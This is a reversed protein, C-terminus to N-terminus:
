RTVLVFAAWAAPHSAGALRTDRLLRLQAKQLAEAESLGIRMGRVMDVSLRAATDDRLPWHSILLSRAGAFLFANALGTYPASTRGNGGASNCASLIVLDSDLKMTLIESATLLGDDEFDGSADRKGPTLVLGPETTSGIEGALLGHTAFAIVSQGRWDIKRLRAETADEGTLLLSRQPAIVAAMQRLESEANPLAPLSLIAARDVIGGRYIATMAPAANKAGGLSPAGIGVFTKRDRDRGPDAELSALSMPTEVAYDRLLWHVGALKAGTASVGADERVLMALSLTALADSAIVHLTGGQRLGSRVKPTFLAQHLNFAAAVNFAAAPDILGDDVSRRISAVMARLKGRGLAIRDALASDSTIAFTLLSYRSPMAILISDDRSLRKQVTDLDVTVPNRSSRYEPIKRALEADGAVMRAELRIIEAQVSLSSTANGRAVLANYSRRLLRSQRADEQVQRILAALRPDRAARKRLTVQQATRANLGWTALQYYELALDVRGLDIAAGSAVSLDNYYTFADENLEAMPAYRTMRIKLRAVSAQLLALGKVGDGSAIEAAAVHIDSQANRGDADPMSAGALDAARSLLPLAVTINGAAAQTEGYRDLIASADIGSAGPQALVLDYARKALAVARTEDGLESAYTSAAALSQAEALTKGGAQGEAAAVTLSIAESLRGSQYLLLGLNQMVQLTLPNRPGASKGLVDLGSRFHPEAEDLRGSLMLAKGLTAEAFGYYANDAPLVDRAIKVAKQALPIAVEARGGKVAINAATGATIAVTADRQGAAEFLEVARLAFPAGEYARGADMLATAYNISASATRAPDPAKLRGLIDLARKQLDLNREARGTAEFMLGLNSLTDAMVASNEAGAARLRVEIAELSVVADAPRQEYYYTDAIKNVIEAQIVVPLQARVADGLVLEWAARGAKPDKVLDIAEARSRLTQKSIPAALSAQAPTPNAALGLAISAFVIIM